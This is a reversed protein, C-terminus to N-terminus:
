VGTAVVRTHRPQHFLVGRPDPAYYYDDKGTM